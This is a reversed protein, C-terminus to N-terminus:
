GLSYLLPFYMPRALRGHSYKRTVGGGGGIIMGAGRGVTGYLSGIQRTTRGILFAAAYIDSPLLYNAHTPTTIAHTSHKRFMAASHPTITIGRPVHTNKQPGGRPSPTILPESTWFLVARRPAATWRSVHSFRVRVSQACM